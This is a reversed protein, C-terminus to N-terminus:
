SRVFCALNSVAAVLDLPNVPKGIHTTFGEGLAKTRDEARTYATLAISPIAGGDEAGLARIRRILSYGDEDPMGIDSVLIQPHFSAFAQVAAAVSAASQVEAGAEVLVASLLERADRDDEVLLVRLGKLSSPLQGSRPEAAGAATIARESRPPLAQYPLTVSLTSGQNPGASAASVSGGHLETIHRVLALGLGLGGFRRTTSSDGQKFREFLYPLLEPAIGIGTDAVSLTYTSDAKDLTIHVSGGTNTFKIANSLLNWVVQQIREADAVFPCPGVGPDFHVSVKKAAASHRVVEIAQQVTSVLDTPAPDIRLKGTIIRSVDLIDEIIKVQAHANREIVELGKTVTPALEKRRLISAWGLIANLPTRLEHSVTALFEDKIRNAEDAKRAVQEAVSRASQESLLERETQEARRRATLDRTVKAFGVLQRKDDRIATVVVNAWFLSGDKRVRWGEDELRGESAATALERQPKGNQVDEAPFFVEFNKGIIERAAYGKMREAGANWTQVRGDSALMYIAYDAVSEVLLRFREESQRLQLEAARRTTLDRTIKAFGVPQGHEDRLTTIVVSAWFLAGGKRVRWGEEEFRNERRVTELVAAPKGAARDEPSYFISFHQGIIESAEYGKTKRAGVNWTAVHGTPHLMFISYDTVADVLQHFRQEVQWLEKESDRRHGLDETVSSFGRLNGAADRLAVLAANAWFQLGGKRVRWGVEELRGAHRAISLDLEPKREVIAGPVYLVSFHQGIIEAGAYGSIREAGASWTLVRGGPDLLCVAHHGLSDVLLSYDVASVSTGSLVPSEDEPLLTSVEPPVM